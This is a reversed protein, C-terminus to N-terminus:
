RTLAILANIESKSWRYIEHNDVVSYAYDLFLKLITAIAYLFDGNKWSMANECGVFCINPKHAKWKAGGSTKFLNDILM